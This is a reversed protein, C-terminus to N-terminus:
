PSQVLCKVTGFQEVCCVVGFAIIRNRCCTNDLMYPWVFARIPINCFVRCVMFRRHCVFAPFFREEAM